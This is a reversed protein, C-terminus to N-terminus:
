ETVKKKQLVVVVAAAAVALVAVAYPAVDGTTAGGANGNGAPANTGAGAGTGANGGAAPTNNGGAAPTNNDGAPKQDDGTAPKQDDGGAALAIDSLTCLEGSISIYIKTGEAAKDVPVTTKSTLGNNTLEVIVNKGSLTAKVKCDVGAKNATLWEAWAADDAPVGESEMAYGAPAWNENLSNVFLGKTGDANTIETLGEAGHAGDPGWAYNDSRIVAYEDYGAGNVKAETGAYVVVNPTDWNFTADASTVSKFTVEVGEATVELGETHKSWFSPCDLEKELAFASMASTVTMAAALAVAFIKKKM